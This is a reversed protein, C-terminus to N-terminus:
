APTMMEHRLRLDTAQAELADAIDKRHLRDALGLEVAQAIRDRLAEAPAAKNTRGFMTMATTTREHQWQCRTTTGYCRSLPTISVQEPVIVSQGHNDPGHGDGPV